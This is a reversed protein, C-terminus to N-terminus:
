SSVPWNGSPVFVGPKITLESPSSVDIRRKVKDTAIYNNLLDFARQRDEEYPLGKIQKWRYIMWKRVINEPFVFTDSDSTILPKMDGTTGDRVSWDSMYEFAIESFPTEPVPNIWLSDQWIRFKYFPGPNPLAMLEQWETDTVPGYLPLMLTRDFFTEFNAKRYGSLGGGLDEIRGQNASATLTHVCELTTVNFNAETQMDELCEQLIALLQIIQTDTSGVVASPISLAHMQCHRVITSLVTM